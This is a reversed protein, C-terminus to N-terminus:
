HVNPKFPVVNEPLEGGADPPPAASIVELRAAMCIRSVSAASVELALKTIFPAICQGLEASEHTGCVAHIAHMCGNLFDLADIGDEHARKLLAQAIAQARRVSAMKEEDSMEKTEM